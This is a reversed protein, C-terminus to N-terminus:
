TENETTPGYALRIDEAIQRRLADTNEFKTEGRLFRSLTVRLTKGYLDGSFGLLHTEILARDSGVTPKVGVDSIANYRTGDPLEAVSAYVGFAPLLVGQPFYQNATPFGLTRGLKAGNEVPLEYCVPRGLMAAARGVEGSAIAKRILTSSLLAGEFLVSPVPILTKGAESLLKGLLATDGSRNKGFRFDEGVVVVECHLADLLTERVFQEPTKDRYEAFDLRLLTQVGAATLEKYQQAEPLLHGGGASRFKPNDRFTIALMRIGRLAAEEGARRFVARHGPHVGDFNGIAAVTPAEPLEPVADYIYNMPNM